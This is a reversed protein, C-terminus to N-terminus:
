GSPSSQPDETLQFQIGFTHEDPIDAIRWSGAGTRVGGANFEPLRRELAALSKDISDVGFSMLFFGEGNSEIFRGPVSDGRTPSVLVFWTEGVLARATRAGREPLDEMQFPGLGFAAEFRQVAAELDRFVFNVHHIRRVGTM